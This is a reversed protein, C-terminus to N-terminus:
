MFINIQSHLEGSLKPSFDRKAVVDHTQIVAQFIPDHWLNYTVVRSRRHVTSNTCILGTIHIRISQIRIRIWLTQEIRIRIRIWAPDLNM